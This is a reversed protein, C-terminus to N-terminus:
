QSTSNVHKDCIRSLETSLIQNARPTPHGDGEFSFVYDRPNFLKSCDITLLSLQKTFSYIPLPGEQTNPYVVLFFKSDPFQQQFLQSARSIMRSTLQYHTTQRRPFNLGFYQRTHSKGLISYITNTLKRGNSFQGNRVVEGNPDTYYFPFDGGFGNVIEMEGVARSEHVEPLYLYFGVGRKEKVESSLKGSELIALMHQPGYGPVGYNYPRYSPLAKAFQSPITQDDNSGEGFLFSCGFFIAFQDPSSSAATTSIRRGFEDTGYHVDWLQKGDIFLECKVRRNKEMATGLDSDHRFLAGPALYDGRYEKTPGPPRRSLLFGFFAESASVCLICFSLGFLAALCKQFVKSRFIWSTNWTSAERSILYCVPTTLLIQLVLLIAKGNSFDFGLYRLAFISLVSIITATLVFRWALLLAFGNSRTKRAPMAIAWIASAVMLCTMTIPLITASPFITRVRENVQLGLIFCAVQIGSYIFLHPLWHKM